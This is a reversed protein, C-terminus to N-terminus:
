TALLKTDRPDKWMSPEWGKIACVCFKSVIMSGVSCWCGRQVARIDVLWRALRSCGTFCDSRPNRAACGLTWFTAWDYHPWLMPKRLLTMHVLPAFYEDLGSSLSRAEGATADTNPSPTVIEAHPAPSVLDPRLPFPPLLGLILRLLIRRRYSM